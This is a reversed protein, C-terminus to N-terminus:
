KIDFNKISDAISNLPPKPDPTNLKRSLEDVEEISHKIESKLIKRIDDNLKTDREIDRKIDPFPQGEKVSGTRALEWKTKEIKKLYKLFSGEKKGTSQINGSLIGKVQKEGIRAFGATKKLCDRPPLGQSKLREYHNCIGAQRIEELTIGTKNTLSAKKSPEVPKTKPPTPNPM